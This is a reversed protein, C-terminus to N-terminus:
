AIGQSCSFASRAARTGQRPRNEKRGGGLRFQDLCLLPILTLGGAQAALEALFDIDLHGADGRM